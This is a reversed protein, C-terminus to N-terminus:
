HRGGLIARETDTNDRVMTELARVTKPCDRRISNLLIQANNSEIAADRIGMYAKALYMLIRYQPHAHGPQKREARAEISLRNRVPARWRLEKWGLWRDMLKAECVEFARLYSKGELLLQVHLNWNKHDLSFGAREVINITDEIAEFKGQQSLSQMQTSLAKALTWRHFKMVPLDLTIDPEPKRVKEKIGFDPRTPQGKKRAIKFALDWFQQVSEYNGRKLSAVMLGSLIEIPLEDRREESISELYQEYLQDVRGFAHRQGYVFIMFAFYSTQAAIDLPLGRVGKRISGSIEQRDTSSSAELFYKEAKQLYAADSRTEELYRQDAIAGAKLAMLRVSSTMERGSNLMRKYVEPVKRVQTNSIYGGMVVAYHYNRAVIGAKPMIEKLIKYARDPQKSMSFALMLASYTAEDWEVRVEKMLALIRHVGKLDRRLGYANVLYNWMRTRSGELEMELAALCIEEAEALRDEQLQSQVLCNIMPVTRTVGEKIAMQYLQMVKDSDGRVACIGMLTGYTYSDPRLGASLLAEFADQAGDVDMAKGYAHILINWCRVDPKISFDNEMRAFVERVKEVEGRLAHVHLLPTFDKATRNPFGSRSASIHYREFLAIVTAADGVSAFMPMIRVYVNPAPRGYYRIWDDLIQKMGLVSIHRYFIDTLQYLLYRSIKKTPSKRYQRYCRVALHTHGSKLLNSLLSEYRKPSNCNLVRLWTLLEYFKSKDVDASSALNVLTRYVVEGAFLRLAEADSQSPSRASIEAFTAVKIAIQPLNPLKNVAKWPDYDLLPPDSRLNGAKRQMWNEEHKILCYQYKTLVESALIWNKNSLLDALLIDLGWPNCSTQVANDYVMRARDQRKLTILNQILAAYATEPSSVQSLHQLLTTMRREDVKRRSSSLYIFLRSTLDQVQRSTNNTLEYLRWAEEYEEQNPRSLMDELLVAHRALELADSKDLVSGSGLLHVGLSASRSREVSVARNSDSISTYLRQGLRAVGARVRRKDQNDPAWSSFQRIIKLAASPYLFDLLPGGTGYPAHTRGEDQEHVTDPRRVLASWLPSLELDTAGHNWFTSHLMRRSKMLKKSGPVFRRLNGTELCRATRELM